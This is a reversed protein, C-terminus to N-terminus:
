NSPIQCWMKMHNEAVELVSKQPVIEDVLKVNLAEQPSFKKGLQSALETQRHGITNVMTDRIWSAPTIGLLSATLGIRFQGESAM